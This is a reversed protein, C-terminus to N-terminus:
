LVTRIEREFTAIHEILIDSARAADGDAIALLVDEHEHVRAFLHPLRDIVLHWIRLSLNFYRGLTEELYPNGSCRHIFRHLRADLAMLAEGDDSGKSGSLEVLLAELEARQADTIREAALAAAHAELVTRVDSIHTLDTINIESAFTGRRPFVTVLNELALRKVAERVPTRGMEFAEGIGDEDIPAGPPIRLTIIRDRLQVYARDALLERPARLHSQARAQPTAARSRESPETTV